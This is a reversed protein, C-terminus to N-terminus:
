HCLCRLNKIHILYQKIQKINNLNIEIAPCISGTWRLLFLLLSILHLNKIGHDIHTAKRATAARVPTM